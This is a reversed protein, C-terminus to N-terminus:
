PDGAIMKEVEKKVKEAIEEAEKKLKKSEETRKKVEDAIKDQIEPPPVIIKVSEIGKKTIGKQAAGSIWRNIQEQGLSSFLYSFVYYPNYDDKVEIKFVHENINCEKFPFDKPVIAVKGTTAGDKVILIDFPKIWSKKQREHFQEPIYKINEFNFDGESTIHEGGISPVGEGIHKVGGKPRQGSVINKSIEGIAGVGYPSNEITNLLRLYKPHCFFPDRRDQLATVDVWYVKKDKVELLEIGLERIIFDSIESIISKARKVINRTKAEGDQAIKVIEGQVIRPPILVKIDKIAPITINGQLSGTRSRTIQQRGFISNLFLSIYDPNIDKNKDLRFRIMFSGFAFHNAEKSVRVVIGITGSRSILFDGEKVYNSDSLESKQVYVLNDLKLHNEQLNQIRLFPVEGEPYAKVSAGYNIERILDALRIINYKTRKLKKTIEAYEPRYYFVDKREELSNVDISFALPSENLIKM